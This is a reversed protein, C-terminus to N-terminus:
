HSAYTGGEVPLRARVVTGQNPRTDVTLTGNLLRVREELSILGLGGGTAEDTPNFGRGDDAITLHLERPTHALDVRVRTAQAHKGINHLTEQAVRYLCLAAQSPVAEVEEAQFDIDVGYRESFETLRERLAPVLGARQLVGPHLEHSFHRVQDGLTMAHNQLRTLEARLQPDRLTRKVMGLGISLAAIRQSADDHLERAIRTREAEQVSILRSALDRARAECEAVLTDKVRAEVRRRRVLRVLLWGIVASQVLLLMSWVFAAGSVPNM